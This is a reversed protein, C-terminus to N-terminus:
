SGLFCALEAVLGRACLKNGKGSLLTMGPMHRARLSPWDPPLRLRMGASIWPCVPIEDASRSRATLAWCWGPTSM